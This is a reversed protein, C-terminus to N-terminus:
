FEPVLILKGMLGTPLLFSARVCLVFVIISVQAAAGSFQYEGVLFLCVRRITVM